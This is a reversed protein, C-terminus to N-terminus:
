ATRASSASNPRSAITSANRAAAAPRLAARDAVRSSGAGDVGASASVAASAMSCAARPANDAAACGDSLRAILAVPTTIWVFRPRAGSAADGDLSQARHGPRIRVELEVELGPPAAPPIQVGLRQELPQETDLGRHHDVVVRRRREQQQRGEGIASLHDDGAPFQHFDAAAKANGVHHRLRAGSQALDARRVARADVVVAIRNARVRCQQEPHVPRIEPNLSEGLLRRELFEYSESALAPDGDGLIDPAAIEAEDPLVVGPPEIVQQCALGAHLRADRGAEVDHAEAAVLQEAPRLGADDCPPAVQHRRDPSM